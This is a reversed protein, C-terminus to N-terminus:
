AKVLWEFRVLLPKCMEDALKRPNQPHMDNPVVCKYVKLKRLHDQAEDEM